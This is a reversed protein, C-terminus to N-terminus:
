LGVNDEGTRYFVWKVRVFLNGEVTETIVENDQNVKVVHQANKLAEEDVQDFQSQDPIVTRSSLLSFASKQSNTGSTGIYDSLLLNMEM